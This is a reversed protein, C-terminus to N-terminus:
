PLMQWKEHGSVWGEKGHVDEAVSCAIKCEDLALLVALIFTKKWTPSSPDDDNM